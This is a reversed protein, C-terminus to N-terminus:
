SDLKVDCRFYACPANPPLTLSKVNQYKNNKSISKEKLWVRASICLMNDSTSFIDVPAKTRQLVRFVNRERPAKRPHLALDVFSINFGKLIDKDWTSEFALEPM